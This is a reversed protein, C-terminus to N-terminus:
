CGNKDKEKVVCRCAFHLTNGICFGLEFHTRWARESLIVIEVEQPSLVFYPTPPWLNPRASNQITYLTYFTNQVFDSIRLHEPQVSRTDFIKRVGAFSVFM